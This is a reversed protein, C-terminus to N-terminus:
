CRLKLEKLRIALVRMLEQANGEPVVREQDNFAEFLPTM